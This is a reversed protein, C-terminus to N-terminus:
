PVYTDKHRGGGEWKGTILWYEYNLLWEAAWPVMTDSVRMHPLWEDKYFLCLVQKSQPKYMHEYETKGEALPLPNPDVVRVQPVCNERLEIKIIYEPSDAKPRMKMFWDFGHRVPKAWSNPYTATLHMCQVPLPLAPKDPMLRYGAKGAWFTHRKIEKDGDPKLACDTVAVRLNNNRAAAHDEKAIATFTRSIPKEGFMRKLYNSLAENSLSSLAQLDEILSTLWAEFMQKKRPKEPWKDAFNEESLAPNKVVPRGNEYTIGHQLHNAVFLITEYLNANPAIQYAIEALTTLLISVPKDDDDGMKVDRHRKFLQVIQQLPLKETSEEFEPFPEVHARAQISSEKLTLGKSKAVTDFINAFGIPNSKKWHDRNTDSDFGESKKDTIKLIYGEPTYVSTEINRRYTEDVVCPLIDVHTGDSFEITWCRRGGQKEKVLNKYTPHALLVDGVIKQIDKQTYWWPVNYLECIIDADLGIESIPKVDTGIRVSGQVRLVPNFRRDIGKTLAETLGDFHQRLTEHDTPTLCVNQALVKLIRSLYESMGPSVNFTM